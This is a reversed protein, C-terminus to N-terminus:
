VKQFCSAFLGAWEQSTWDPQREVLLDLLPPPILRPSRDVNPVQSYLVSLNDRSIADAIINEVGPIHVTKIQIDLRAQIFFLCRLLHM